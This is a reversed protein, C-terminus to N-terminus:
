RMLQLDRPEVVLVGIADYSDYAVVDVVYGSYFPDLPVSSGLWESTSPPTRRPTCPSRSWWCMEASSTTCTLGFLSWM